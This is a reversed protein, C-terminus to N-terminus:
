RRQKTILWICLCWGRAKSIIINLIVEHNVEFANLNTFSYYLDGWWFVWICLDVQIKIKYNHFMSVYVSPDIFLPFHTVGHWLYKIRLNINREGDCLGIIYPQFICRYCVKRVSVQYSYHFHSLLKIKTIKTKQKTLYCPSQNKFFHGQIRLINLFSFSNAIAEQKFIM